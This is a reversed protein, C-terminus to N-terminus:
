LCEKSVKIARVVDVVSVIPQVLNGVVKCRSQSATHSSDCTDASSGTDHNVGIVGPLVAVKRQAPPVSPLCQWCFRLVVDGAAVFEAQTVRIDIAGVVYLHSAEGVASLALANHIQKLLALHM